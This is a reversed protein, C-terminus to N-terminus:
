EGLNLKKFGGIDFGKAPSPKLDLKLATNFHAILFTLDYILIGLTGAFLFFAIVFLVAQRRSVKIKFKFKPLKM